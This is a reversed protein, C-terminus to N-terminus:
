QVPDGKQAHIVLDETPEGTCYMSGAVRMFRRPVVITGGNALAIAGLMKRATNLEQATHVRDPYVALIQVAELAARWADQMVQDTYQRSM